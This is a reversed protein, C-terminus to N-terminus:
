RPMMNPVIHYHDIAYVLWLGAISALSCFLAVVIFMVGLKALDGMMEKLTM